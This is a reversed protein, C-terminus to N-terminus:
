GSIDHVHRRDSDDGARAAVEAYFALLQPTAETIEVMFGFLARTDFYAVRTGDLAGSQAEVYGLDRCARYAKDFDANLMAMHHFGGVGGPFAQPFSDRYCSAGEDLQQVLEIQMGGIYGWAIHLDITTPGGRYCSPIGRVARRVFFPGAGRDVWAAVAEDIDAVAWGCQM